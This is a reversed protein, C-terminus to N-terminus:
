NVLQARKLLPILRVGVFATIICTIIDGPICIIAGGWLAAWAGLDNGIYLKNILYLYPVGIAYVSILGMVAALFLKEFTIEQMGEVFWGIVYSAVVFGILYGFTPKMIYGIGGGGTFVPIGMLGILVYTLQSIGGLRSGLLVGALATFLFQLTFPVMPPPLPIKIFAGIATLAAFLGCLALSKTKM